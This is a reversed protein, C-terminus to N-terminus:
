PVALAWGRRRAAEAFAVVNPSASSGELGHFLALMPAGEPAGHLFDVDIFDADPTTWRERVFGPREQAHTRAGLASWITQLNGGPLWFPARYDHM